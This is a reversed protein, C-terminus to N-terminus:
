VDTGSPRPSPHLVQDWGLDDAAWLRDFDADADDSFGWRNRYNYRWRQERIPLGLRALRGACYTDWAALEENSLKTDPPTDAFDERLRDRARLLMRGVNVRTREASFHRPRQTREFAGSEAHVAITSDSSRGDLDVFLRGLPTTEDIELHIPNAIGLLEATAITVRAIEVADFEVFHFEEPTVTVRPREGSGGAHGHDPDDAAVAAKTM